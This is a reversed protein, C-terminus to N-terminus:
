ATECGNKRDINVGLQRALQGIYPRADGRRVMETFIDEAFRRDEGSLRAIVLRAPANPGFNLEVLPRILQENIASEVDTIL